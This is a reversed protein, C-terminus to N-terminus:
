KLTSILFTLNKNIKRKRLKQVRIKDRLIEIPYFTELRLYKVPAGSKFITFPRFWLSYKKGKFILDISRGNFEAASCNKSFISVFKTLFSPLDKYRVGRDFHYSTEHRQYDKVYAAFHRFLIHVFCFQDILIKNRGYLDLVIENVGLEQHYEKVLLYIYRSHLIISKKLYRNKLDSVNNKQCYKGMLKLQHQTQDIMYGLLPDGTKKGRIIEEWALYETNLFVVDIQKQAASVVGYLNRIEGTGDLDYAYLLYTNNFRYNNCGQLKTIDYQYDGLHNRLISLTRCTFEEEALSLNEGNLFRQLLDETVPKCAKQSGSIKQLYKRSYTM